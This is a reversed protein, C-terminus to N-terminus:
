DEDSFLSLFFFSLSLCSTRQGSVCAFIAVTLICVLVNCQWLWGLNVLNRWESQRTKSIAIIVHHSFKDSKPLFTLLSRVNLRQEKNFVFPNRGLAINLNALAQKLALAASFGFNWTAHNSVFLFAMVHGILVKLKLDRCTFREHAMLFCFRVNLTRTYNQRPKLRMSSHCVKQWIKETLSKTLPAFSFWSCYDLAYTSILEAAFSPTKWTHSCIKLQRKQLANIHISIQSSYQLYDFSLSTRLLSSRQTVVSIVATYCVLSLCFIESIGSPLYITLDSKPFELRFNLLVNQPLGKM